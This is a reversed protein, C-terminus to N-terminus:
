IKEILHLNTGYKTPKIVITKINLTDIIKEYNHVHSREIIVVYKKSIELMNLLMSKARVANVHMLVAHSYVVDYQNLMKDIKILSFDDVTVNDFISKDINLEDQGFNLQNLSIDCGHLECDSLITHINALHQGSGCGVEYVSKPNLQYIANYLDKWNPHLNDRFVLGNDSVEVIQKIFLDTNKQMETIQASYETHYKDWSFEDHRTSM